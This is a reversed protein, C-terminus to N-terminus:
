SVCAYEKVMFEIGQDLSHRPSWGTKNQFLSTDAVFNRRDIPSLAAVQKEILVPKGLQQSVKDAVKAFAEAVTHGKGSGVFFYRGNINKIHYAAALFASIADDVYLYDRQYSEIGKILTLPKSDLARHVMQNLVARDKVQSVKGPGYVNSLRLSAALLKRHRAAQLLATEAKLKHQDYITIPFDPHSENVPVQHTIGCQTASGAFIIKLLPNEAAEILNLIPQVNVAHDKVPDEAAIRASTQGALYFVTDIGKLLKPWITVDQVDGEIWEIQKNAVSNSSRSLCRLKAGLPLLAAQLQGGLYGSAGTILVKKNKFFSAFSDTM